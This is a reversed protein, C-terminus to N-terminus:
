KKVLEVLGRLGDELSISPAFGLINRAKAINAYFRDNINWAEKHIFKPQLDKKGTITTLLSILKLLSTEKGSAINFTGTSGALPALGSDAWPGADKRVWLWSSADPDSCQFQAAIIGGSAYQPAFM